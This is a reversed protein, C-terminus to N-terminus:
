PPSANRGAVAAAETTQMSTMLHVLSGLTNPGFYASEAMNLVIHM